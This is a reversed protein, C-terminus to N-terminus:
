NKFSFLLIQKHYFPNNGLFQEQRLRADGRHDGHPIEAEYSEAIYIYGIM